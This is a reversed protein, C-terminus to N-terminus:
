RSLQRQERLMLLSVKRNTSNCDFGILSDGQVYMIIIWMQLNDSIDSPINDIIWAM